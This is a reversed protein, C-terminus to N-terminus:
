VVSKRDAYFDVNRVMYSNLLNIPGGGAGQVAFHNPNPIEINDMIFLNEGPYGGRIIIENLQDSGSVVSPLAQMARQIDVLDGPSRRIEEFDMSRTSVMAEKPKDFYSATIEVAEGEVMSLELGIELETTRNASVIINGRKATTYGLYRVELNYSGSQLNEIVFHGQEDTAAGTQTGLVLVNAGVLPELTRSDYVNGSIKGNAAGAITSALMLLAGIWRMM